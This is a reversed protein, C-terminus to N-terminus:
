EEWERLNRRKVFRLINEWSEGGSQPWRGSGSNEGGQKDWDNKRLNRNATPNPGRLGAGPGIKKQRRCTLDGFIDRQLLM